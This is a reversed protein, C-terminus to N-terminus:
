ENKRPIIGYFMMNMFEMIVSQVNNNYMAVLQPDAVMETMKNSLYFIFDINVDKRIAGEQQARAYDERVMNVMRATIEIFFAKLEDSWGSYVDAIFAESINITGEFKMRVQEKIKEEFPINRAMLAKYDKEAKSFINSIVIRALEIKNPFFRYFTMKSVGAETCIEEITVRKIGFKWFLDHATKTIQKYKPNSKHGSM